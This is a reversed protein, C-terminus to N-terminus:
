TSIIALLKFTDTTLKKDKLDKGFHEMLKVFFEHVDEQRSNLGMHVSKCQPTQMVAKFCQSPSLYISTDNNTMQMFLLRLERLVQNSLIHQPVNEIAQKTLSCHVLCQVVSNFYCTNGLNILGKYRKTHYTQPQNDRINHKVNEAKRPVNLRRKKWVKKATPRVYDQRIQKLKHLSITVNGIETKHTSEFKRLSSIITHKKMRVCKAIGLRKAYYRLRSVSLKSYDGLKKLQKYLTIRQRHLLRGNGANLLNRGHFYSEKLASRLDDVKSGTAIIDLKTM